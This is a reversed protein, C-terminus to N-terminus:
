RPIDVTKVLRECISLATQGELEAEASLSVRHGVIYPFLTLVDDPTVYDRGEKAAYAKSARMLDLSARPSAGLTLAATERTTRVLHTIYSLLSEDIIISQSQKRLALIDEGRLIPQLSDLANLGPNSNRDALIRVEDELSPYPFVIKFLFRDLQAEPLRYTGEQEVPNQTALVMYPQAMPYTTGDNTVQGEEMVEFLAAQTKAPARNIEDILIFQSFIPGKVFQFGGTKMDYIRTGTVDSPMLDPTFQIRNFAVDVLKSLVRASLTKAVGPVGELLVHGDAILATLMLDLVQEQGAIVQGIEKKIQQIREQIM